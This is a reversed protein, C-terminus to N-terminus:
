TPSSIDSTLQTRFSPSPSFFIFSQHPPCTRSSWHMRSPPSIWPCPNPWAIAQCLATSLTTLADRLVHPQEICGKAKCGKVLLSIMPKVM